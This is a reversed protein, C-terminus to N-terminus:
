IAHPNHHPFNECLCHRRLCLNTFSSFQQVLQHSYRMIKKMWPKVISPVAKISTAQPPQTQPKQQLAHHRALFVTHLRFEYLCYLYLTEAHRDSDSPSSCSATAAIAPFSAHYAGQAAHSRLAADMRHILKAASRQSQSATSTACQVVVAHKRRGRRTQRQLPHRLHCWLDMNVINFLRINFLPQPVVLTHNEFIRRKSCFPLCARKSAQNTSRSAADDM